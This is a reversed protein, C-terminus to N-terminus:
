HAPAFSARSGSQAAPKEIQVVYPDPHFRSDDSRSVDITMLVVAKTGVDVSKSEKDFAM